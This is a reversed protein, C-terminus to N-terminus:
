VLLKNKRAFDFLYQQAIGGYKVLNQPLGDPYYASMVRKMWVDMPICETKHFAFLLVCDAVKNGVGKIKKLEERAEPTSLAFLGELNIEGSTVKNVADVIYKARFGARLPSLDAETVGKLQEQTPFAYVGDGIKTGFEECLRGIIGSIRKINNNQSIIFSILTEFPEQRLVRIGKEKTALRLTEDTSFEEFLLSYDLESDFYENWFVEDGENANLVAVGDALQELEAYRKGVVGCFIGDERETFRFCQGCFLTKKLELCDIKIELRM